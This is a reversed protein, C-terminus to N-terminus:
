KFALNRRGRKAARFRESIARWPRQESGLAPRQSAADAGFGFRQKCLDVLMMAADALDPSMGYHAKMVEKPEVLMRLVGSKRTTYKRACLEKVLEPTVGGLQRGRILEKGSFWIESVRNVYRENAPTPDGLSTPRTSAAGGFFIKLVRDSWVVRVIDGFAIGAGTADFAANQPAVGEAECLERFKRAIQYSRPETKNTVDENLTVARDLCLAPLGDVNQGYTGFYLVSRDGGNTFAPDLAAVRTGESAWTVRSMAGFKLIESESYVKDEAGEPCWFGRMMRYFRASNADSDMLAEDIKKQTPLFKYRVEGSVVNPSKLADFHLAKGYLTEWETDEVTISEWGNKPTALKGFPDYYSKPNSMGVLQFYENSTLNGGPLAVELISEVLESLEDAILIVRENKTGILKGVAAKEKSKECPVLIVGCKDSYKGTGGDDLRIHGMSDVVKGPLRPVAQFYDRISGWIRRRSEKLTTSTVMVMTQKPACLWNVLAWMAFFDSNHTVTFDGLLFRGDGDLTFGYWDGEGLQKISFSTCDSNHRKRKLTCKKRLTPIQTVDGAINIRFSPFEKGNARTTRPKVVVRFGLSRALFAIDETLGPLACSVEFYTGAAYGDTDIIGALLETRVRRSNILYERLIRKEGLKTPDGQRIGSSRRVFDLFANGKTGPQRVSLTEASSSSYTKTSVRYGLATFKETVYHAVLPDHAISITFMPRSTSGDGLWIGYVRPDFEVPQEPFEVGTCVLKFRAKFAPGKALYDKVSIDVLEGVRGQSSEGSWARKLTLVHDDNCEWPEGKEPVIRVMNSRGSNARLVTRPKSDPGMLQDGVRVEDNRKVSGDFMLVPVHPALCKGSSACGAVALYKSECAADLMADAWPHFVFKKYQNSPGWLKHVVNKFHEAKGLGQNEPSLGERFCYLEIDLETM